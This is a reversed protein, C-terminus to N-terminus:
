GGRRPHFHDRFRLQEDGAPRRGSDAHRHREADNWQGARSSYLSEALESGPDLRCSHDSYRCLRAEAGGNAANDAGDILQVYAGNLHLTGHAFNRIYGNQVPGRDQGMVELLRPAAASGGFFSVTAQLSFLDANTTSGTLNAVPGLSGPSPAALWNLGNFELEAPNAWTLAGERVDLTGSNNFAVRPGIDTRGPRQPHLQGPQRLHPWQGLRHQEPRRRRPRLVHRGALQAVRWYQHPQGPRLSPQQRRLHAHRCERLHPGPGQHRDRLDNGHRQGGPGTQRQGAHARGDLGAGGTVTVVGSGDLTGGSHSFTGVQLTNNATLTGGSIALSAVTSSSGSPVTVLGTVVLRGTGAVNSLTFFGGALQVDGAVVGGLSGGGVLALGGQQMDISGSNNFAVRPGIDTRGAGSRIFSGQNDFTHGSGWGTNSLDGDGLAYFTGGPLNPLVGTSILNDPGFRLNSGDYTLTGANEFTRGLDKIGTGSITGTGSAALVLKGSDLMRGGTWGLAGTVTVVGSGDLTGGSHSFTGVQLTNNATLTGGSIALSAVTSSSGSPVTVLGTVVLRGTGAVNSLTFFGGALQVDGAVVGGLSGGGVLALGGQQMDISGSNNFAVRPGIDTRGAGSRIFSGQNDFTHGSGWGTNSLDGDGLAYFTGGPLNRLVGTSILNDPGFRLNSGDYTLTGANEFTRGLDKIGTGSITGTGSAALVLKGSGRMDGGTWGLAGTVTVVGSGDLTGGSHSFTGVQLTNNATLTGGSIALSAVTSSSGSPVTVLGTVVLRGTGAVNSLTFFGGALQVDGAVM